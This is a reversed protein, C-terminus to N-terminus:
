HPYMKGRRRLDIWTLLWPLGLLLWRVGALFIILPEFQWLLVGMLDLAIVIFLGFVQKKLLLFYGLLYALTFLAALVLLFYSLATVGPLGMLALVGDMLAGGEGSESEGPFTLDLFQFFIQILTALGSLLM